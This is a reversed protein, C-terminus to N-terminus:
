KTKKGKVKEAKGEAILRDAIHKPLDIEVGAKISASGSPDDIRELTRVQVTDSM